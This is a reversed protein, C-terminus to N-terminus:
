NRSSPLHVREIKFEGPKLAGTQWSGIAKRYLRLTPFGTAATMHRVQRNKGETLVLEIWSTPQHKRQRIPPNRQPLPTEQLVAAKAPRTTWPKSGRDKLRIGNRLEDLANQHIIGEVQVWYIKPMKHKPSSIQAQLKGDDTLLVLGESDKDLRGAPYFNKHPIFDALTPNQDSKDTFQCLVGYPKNFILINAM